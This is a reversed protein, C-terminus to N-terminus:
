AHVRAAILVEIALIALLLWVLLTWIEDPRLSDPAALSAIRARMM